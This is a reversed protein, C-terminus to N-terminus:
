RRIRHFMRVRSARAPSSGTSTAAGRVSARSETWKYTCAAPVATRGSRVPLVVPQQICSVADDASRRIDSSHCVAHSGSASGRSAHENKCAVLQLKRLRGFPGQPPLIRWNRECFARPSGPLPLRRAQLKERVLSLPRWFLRLTRLNLLNLPVRRNFHFGTENSQVSKM